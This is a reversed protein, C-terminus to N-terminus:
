ALNQLLWNKCWEAVQLKTPLGNEAINWEPGALADVDAADLWGPLSLESRAEGTTAFEGLLLAILLFQKDEPM